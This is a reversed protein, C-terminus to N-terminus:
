WGCNTLSRVVRQGGAGLVLIASVALGLTQFANMVRSKFIHQLTHGVSVWGLHPARTFSGSDYVAQVV